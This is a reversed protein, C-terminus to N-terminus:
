SLPDRAAEQWETLDLPRCALQRFKRRPWAPQSGSTTSRNLGTSIEGAFWVAIVSFLLGFVAAIMTEWNFGLRASQFLVYYVGATWSTAIVAPFLLVRVLYVWLLNSSARRARIVRLWREFTIPGSNVPVEGEAAAPMAVQAESLLDTRRTAWEKDFSEVWEGSEDNGPHRLALDIKAEVACIFDTLRSIRALEGVWYLMGAAALAPIWILFSLEVVSDHSGWQSITAGAVIGVIATGWQLATYTHQSAQVGAAALMRYEEMLLTLYTDKEGV